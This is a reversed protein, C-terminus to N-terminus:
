STMKNLIEDRLRFMHNSLSRTLELSIQQTDCSKVFTEGIVGNTNPGILMTTWADFDM